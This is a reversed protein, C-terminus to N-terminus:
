RCGGHLQQLAPDALAEAAALQQQAHQEHEAQHVDEDARQREDRQRREVASPQQERERRARGPQCFASYWSSSRLMPM